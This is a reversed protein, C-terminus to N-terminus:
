EESKKKIFKIAAMVYKTTWDTMFLGYKQFIHGFHCKLTYQTINLKKAIEKKNFGKCFLEMVEKEKPTLEDIYISNMM